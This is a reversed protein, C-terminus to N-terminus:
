QKHILFSISKEDHYSFTIPCGIMRVLTDEIEELCLTEKSLLIEVSASQENILSARISSILDIVQTVTTSPPYETSQEEPYAELTITEMWQYDMQKWTARMAQYIEETIFPLFPHILLIYQLSIKRLADIGEKDKRGKFTEVYIDCFEYILFQHLESSAKMFSYESLRQNVAYVCQRFRNLIWTDLLGHFQTPTQTPVPNQALSFKMANWLKNCFRRCSSVKEISLNVDRTLSANFLLSFRLSDSGCPEIGKPYEEKLTKEAKLMESQSLNGTRLRKLLAELSTGEIVDVPDIVNGKSKSMKEGKGDRVISHFLATSFPCKDTLAYGLMVMRAVWFFVIDKGTELLDTPYYRKMDETEYPWGLTAFPWLGSSFWTDLVDEEQQVPTGSLKEAEEKTRTIYWKGNATYAPIRHGWWLQRSLCWDRPDKMWSAWVKKMEEPVIKLEETESANLARKALESCKMWWQPLVRQEIVEGTRSCIPISGEHGKEEVLRKNETLFKITKERAIFRKEGKFPGKTIINNKDLIPSLPLNHKQGVSFDVADHAPTIKLAGTGFDMEAAEDFIFPLEENTIPNIATAGKYISYRTDNPHVCIAADGVITEPRTTSVNITGILKKDLQVDYQVTFIRGFTYKNGDTELKQYPSVPLYEVELDSITTQIKSCWNVIREGRYILGQEHFRVFAETVAHSIKKDMTFCERTFDLSAGLRKFQEVIRTGHEEKWQWVKKLFEERGLQQRSTGQKQLSKEVVVQTAIGAHDTGPLFLTEYGQMRKRRVITDEIAVMMAHGIHLYGTVNPPPLVIVFRKGNSLKAKTEPKFFNKKNWWSFWGKETKRPNFQGELHTVQKKEGPEIEEGEEFHITSVKKEKKQTESIKMKALYKAAKEAKKENKLRKREEQKEEESM